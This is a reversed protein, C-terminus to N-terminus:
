QEIWTNTGSKNVLRWGRIRGSAGFVTIARSSFVDGTRALYLVGSNMNGTTDHASGDPLFMVQAKIGGTVGQDFDLATGGSGFGDPPAGTPIGSVALFQVDHPLETKSLQVAATLATGGPWQYIQVSQADPVGLPTAAGAPSSAGFCVIYQERGEISRERASRLLTVAIDYGQNNHADKLAPQLSLFTVSMMIMAIALVVAMEILSFGHAKSSVM